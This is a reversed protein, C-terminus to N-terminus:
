PKPLGAGCTTAGCACSTAVQYIYDKTSGDPCVLQVTRDETTQTSCCSCQKEFKGTDVSFVSASTCQGECMTVNVKGQSKCGGFEFEDVFDVVPRCNQPKSKPVCYTCCGDATTVIDAPDCADDVPPCSPANCQSFVENNVPDIMCECTTCKNDPSTWTQGPAYQKGNYHCVTPVCDGCCQGAVPVYTYGASCTGCKIPTCKSSHMKGFMSSECTCETCIDEMWVAGPAHEIGDVLCVSPPECEFTKCGCQDFKVNCETWGSECPTPDVCEDCECKSTTCCDNIKTEVLHQKTPCSTAGKDCTSYDCECAYTPCCEGANTQYKREWPQCTVENDTPCQDVDCVCITQYSVPCCDPLGPQSKEIGTRLVKYGPKDPCTVDEVPPCQAADCQCEYTQCCDTSKSTVIRKYGSACKNAASPCRSQDCVCDYSPCCATPDSVVPVEGHDCTPVASEPCTCRDCVCEYTSCCRGQKITRLSYGAQDCQPAAPCTDHKCVCTATPCCSDADVVELEEGEECTPVPHTPCSEPKCVCTYELCCEKEGTATVKWEEGFACTPKIVTPCVVATCDKDPICVYTPCCASDESVKARVEGANCTPAPTCVVSNHTITGDALCISSMCTDGKHYWQEGNKREVGNEDTCVPCDTPTICMGNYLVDGDNCFCGEAQHGANVTAYTKYNGCTKVVSPGCASYSAGAITCAGYSCFDDSRWDVCKGARAAASAFAAFVSCGEGSMKGSPPVVLACTDMYESKDVVSAMEALPGKSFLGTCYATSEATASVSVQACEPTLLWHNFFEDLGCPYGGAWFDNDCDGDAMGCLGETKGAFAAPVHVSWTDFAHDFVVKVDTSKQVVTVKSDAQTIEFATLAAAAQDAAAGKHIQYSQGSLKDVITLVNTCIGGGNCAAREVSVEFDLGFTDKALVHTCTCFKAFSQGDFTQIRSSGAYGRCVFDCVYKPCCGDVDFIVKPESGDSCVPKTLTGCERSKCMVTLDSLCSCQQCTDNHMQWTTERDRFTGTEDTCGIPKCQYQGCCDSEPNTRELMENASCKPAAPCKEPRCICDYAPCCEGPNTIVASHYKECTPAVSETCQMTDCMCEYVNCCGSKRTVLMEDSACTPKNSDDCQDAECVVGELTCTCTECDGKWTAWLSHKSGYVDKCSDQDPICSGCCEDGKKVL